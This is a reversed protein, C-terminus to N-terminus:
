FSSSAKPYLGSYYQYFMVGQIYDLSNSESIPSPRLMTLKPLNKVQICLGCGQLRRFSPPFIVKIAFKTAITPRGFTPLDVKNLRKVCDRRAITLSVAPVVRSRWYPLHLQFPLSNETTSVPPQTTLDSSIKSSAIRLCTNTAVSSASKTRKRTSTFVPKVSQSSSTASIRRRAM